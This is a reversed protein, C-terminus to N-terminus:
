PRTGQIPGSTDINTVLAWRDTFDGCLLYGLKAPSSATHNTIPTVCIEVEYDMRGHNIVDANWPTINSLKPFLFPEGEHGVEEAHAKYNTGAAVQPFHENIPTTLDGWAFESQAQETILKSLMDSDISHYADIADDYFRDTTTSLNIGKVISAGASVVLIVNGTTTRAFTLAKNLHAVEATNSTAPDLQEDFVPQSMYWTVSTALLILVLLTTFIKM